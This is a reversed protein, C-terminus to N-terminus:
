RESPVRQPDFASLQERLARRGRVLLGEMASVSIRLVKAAEACSLDEDYCLALAIRQRVPLSALAGAIARGIQRGEARAHPGPAPDVPQDAQDLEASAPRRRHDLCLNILIRYFWTAFGGRAPDWRHAQTWVRLLAEQVLDEADGRGIVRRAVGLAPRAYRRSLREFARVDAAIVRAMLADDSDPGASWGTSSRKEPTV